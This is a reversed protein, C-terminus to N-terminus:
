ITFYKKQEENGVSSTKKSAFPRLGAGETDVHEKGHCCCSLRRNRRMKVVDLVAAVAVDSAIRAALPEALGPLGDRKAPLTRNGEPYSV